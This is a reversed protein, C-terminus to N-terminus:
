PGLKRIRIYGKNRTTKSKIKKIKKEKLDELSSLFASFSFSRSSNEIGSLFSSFCSISSFTSFILASSSVSSFLASFPSSIALSTGAIEPSALKSAARFEKHKSGASLSLSSLSVSSDFATTSLLGKSELLIFNTLKASDKSLSSSLKDGTGTIFEASTKSASLSKSNKFDKCVPGFTLSPVVVM